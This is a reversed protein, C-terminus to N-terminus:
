MLCGDWPLCGEQQARGDAAHACHVGEYAGLGVRVTLVCVCRVDGFFEGSLDHECDLM